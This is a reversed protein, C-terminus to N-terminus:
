LILMADGYSYFRYHRDVAERYCDLISERSAFASVLMLLSSKPLHFNTVLKDVLNFRYPPYIFLDTWGSSPGLRASTDRWWSELARTTTTGVVVLTKGAEHLRRLSDATQRDVSYWEQEVSHKRVEEVAVPRFTGWGIHLTLKVIEVGKHRIADLLGDTFHLGATPAAVSGVPDSYVTQYRQLDSEEAQRKIYPPLPLQGANECIVLPDDSFEVIREAGDLEEVVLANGYDGFHVKIGCKIRRAPRCLVKWTRDSVAHLCLFEVEGGTVDKNGILRAKFVKSDNVILAHGEDLYEALSHFHMHSITGDSRNFVLLKSGTRTEAPYRAIFDPPLDYDFDSVKM